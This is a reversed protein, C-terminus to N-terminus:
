LRILYYFRHKKKGRQRDMGVDEFSKKIEAKGRFQKVIKEASKKSGLYIDYGGKVKKINAVFSFRDKHKEVRAIIDELTERKVDGRLQLVAEYYGGSIRSCDPCAVNKVRVRTKLKKESGALKVTVIGEYGKQSKEAEVKLVGAKDLRRINSQVSERVARLAADKESVGKVWKGKVLFSDCSRCRTLEITPPVEVKLNKKMYCDSCFVGVESKRGCLPCVM